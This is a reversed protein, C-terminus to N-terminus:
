RAMLAARSCAHAPLNTYSVQKFRSTPPSPCIKGTVHLDLHSLSVADRYILSCDLLLYRLCMCATSKTPSLLLYALHEARPHLGYLGYNHWFFLAGLHQFLSPSSSTTALRSVFGPRRSLSWDIIAHDKYRTTCLFPECPQRALMVTSTIIAWPSSGTGRRRRCSLRSFAPSATGHEMNWTGLSPLLAGLLPGTIRLLDPVHALASCLHTSHLRCM